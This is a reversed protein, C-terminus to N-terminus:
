SLLSFLGRIEPRHAASFRGTALTDMFRIAGYERHTDATLASDFRRAPDFHILHRCFEVLTDSSNINAPLVSHLQDPLRRKIEILEEKSRAHSFLRRGSLLEILVYGLSALDSRPTFDGGALVEPAAYCDTYHAPKSELYAFMSGIDILKANGNRRLMINSPKIDGHVLCHRHLEDLAYLCNRIIPVAMAPYFRPLEAGECVVVKLVHELQAPSSNQRLRRLMAPVMLRELDYGDIWEMLLMRIGDQEQFQYVHVLHEHHLDAVETAIRAMRRVDTLYHEPSAFRDPAFIKLARSGFFGDAGASRVLFVVGQGGEGLLAVIRSDPSWALQKGDLISEYRQRWQANRELDAPAAPTGISTSDDPILTEGATYPNSWLGSGWAHFERYERRVRQPLERGLNRLAARDAARLVHPSPEDDLVAAAGGDAAALAAFHFQDLYEDLKDTTLAASDDAGSATDGGSATAPRRRRLDPRVFIDFGHRRLSDLSLRRGVLLAQQLEAQAVTEQPKALLTPLDALEAVRGHQLYFHSYAGWVQQSPPPLEGIATRIADLMEERQVVALMRWKRRLERGAPSDDFRPVAIAGSAVLRGGREGALRLATKLLWGDLREDHPLSHHVAKRYVCHLADRWNEALEYSSLEGFRSRVITSIRYRYRADLEELGLLVEGDGGGLLRGIAALEAQTPLPLPDGLDLALPSALQWTEFIERTLPHDDGYKQRIRAILKQQIRERRTALVHTIEEADFLDAPPSATAPAALAEWGLEAAQSLAQSPQKRVNM